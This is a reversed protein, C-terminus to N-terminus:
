GLTVKSGNPGMSIRLGFGNEGTSIHRVATVEGGNRVNFETHGGIHSVGEGMQSSTVGQSDTRSFNAGDLVQKAGDTTTIEASAGSQRLNSLDVFGGDSASSSLRRGVAVVDRASLESRVTNLRIADDAALQVNKAARILIAMIRPDSRREELIRIREQLTDIKAVEPVIQQIEWVTRRIADKLDVTLGGDGIKKILVGLVPGVLPTGSAIAAAIELALPAYETAPTVRELEEALADIETSDIVKTEM